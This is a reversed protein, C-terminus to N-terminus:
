EKSNRESAGYGEQPVRLHQWIHAAAISPSLGLSILHKHDLSNQMSEILSILAYTTSHKNNFGFQKNYLLHNKDIFDCM